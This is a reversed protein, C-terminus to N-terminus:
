SRLAHFVIGPIKLWSPKAEFWFLQQAVKHASKHSVFWPPMPLLGFKGALLGNPFPHFPGYLVSKEPHDFMMTNHVTGIGSQVDDIPHGPFAGWSTESLLFGAGTWLNVAICGYRLRAIEAEFQKGLKALTKPHILINAGLTGALKDNSFDIAKRLFDLEDVYAIHPMGLVPAFAEEQYALQDNSTEKTDFSVMLQDRALPKRVCKIRSDYHQRFREKRQETGPYYPPRDPAKTVATAIAEELQRTKKWGDPLVVIQAAICNFGGNHLRQTAINRAQFEIDGQTWPGPVVIVPSVGGLESTIPKHNIRQRATGDRKQAGFVIADHTNSSGTIHLTDIQPHNCLYAGIDAGGYAIQVFGDRILMAFIDEIYPGLYDNVPNLKLIVVSLDTFLKYLTDMPAISSINGAGLVLGVSATPNGRQRDYSSARQGPLAEPTIGPQMWIEARVGNLLVQDFLTRPFVRVVTQGSASVRTPLDTVANRNGSAINDLTAILQKVSRLIAWPGSMWEEGALAPAHATGKANVASSVWDQSVRQIRDRIDELYAIRARTPMAAWCAKNQQLVAIADDISQNSAQTSAQTQLTKM